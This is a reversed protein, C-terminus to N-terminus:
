ASLEGFASDVDGSTQNKDNYLSSELLEYLGIQMCHVCSVEGMYQSVDIFLGVSFALTSSQGRQTM